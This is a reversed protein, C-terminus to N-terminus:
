RNFYKAIERADSTQTLALLLLVRAKQPTLNGALVCGIKELSVGSGKTAYLPRTRGTYVRTSIVVPINRARVEEIADYMTGSVHGLGAGAIVLGALRGERLLGRIAAGDAGAYHMVIEVQGLRTDPGLLITQRRLPARYFRVEDDDAYGLKGFELSRFTGVDLTSTKTVERAANIENNMVIMAGKGVAEPSIAVRIASSLNRPGDSDKMSAARQAGVLVVPKHSGIALDMFYATEEITDTGHTIVIGTVASDALLESARRALRLWIDPTMDSSGINAISEIDIRAVSKIEPISEMLEDGSLAPVFGKQVPDYRSAITGGTTLLKVLPLEDAAVMEVLAAAFVCLLFGRFVRFVRFLYRQLLGPCQTGHNFPSNMQDAVCFTPTVGCITYTTNKTPRGEADDANPDSGSFCDADIFIRLSSGPSAM